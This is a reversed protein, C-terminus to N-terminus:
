RKKLGALFVPLMARLGEETEKDLSSMVLLTDMARMVVIMGSALKAPDDIDFEGREKGFALVELLQDCAKDRYEQVVQEVMPYADTVASSEAERVKVVLDLYSFRALLFAVLKAEATGARDISDRIRGHIEEAQYRVVAALM